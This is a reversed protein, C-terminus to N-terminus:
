KGGKKFLEGLQKKKELSEVRVKLDDIEVRLDQPLVPEIFAPNTELGSLNAKMLWAEIPKDPVNIDLYIIEEDPRNKLKIDHNGHRNGWWGTVKKTQKNYRVELM